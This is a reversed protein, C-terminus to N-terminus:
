QRYTNVVLPSTNSQPAHCQTCVFRAGSLKKTLKGPDRRLDTYHSAPIPTPEGPEPRTGIQEPLLHCDLCLNETTRIPLYDELQHPILPPAGSFYAGLAQNEGPPEATVTAAVPEPTSFVSTKSLGLKDDEVAEVAKEALAAGVLSLTIACGALM